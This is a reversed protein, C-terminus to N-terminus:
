LPSIAFSAGHKVQDVMHFGAKLHEVLMVQAGGAGGGGGAVSQWSLTNGAFWIWSIGNPVSNKGSAMAQQGRFSRIPGGGGAGSVMEAGGGDVLNIVVLTDKPNLIDAVVVALVMHQVLDQIKHRSWVILMYGNGGGPGGPIDPKRTGNGGGANAM